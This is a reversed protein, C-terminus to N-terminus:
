RFVGSGACAESGLNGMRRKEVGERTDIIPIPSLMLRLADAACFRGAGHMRPGIRAMSRLNVPISELSLLGERQLVVGIGYGALLDTGQVVSITTRIPFCGGTRVAMRWLTTSCVTFDVAPAHHQLGESFGPVSMGYMDRGVEVLGEFLYTL